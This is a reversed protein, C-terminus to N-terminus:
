KFKLKYIIKMISSYSIYRYYIGVAVFTSILTIKMLIKVIINLEMAMIPYVFITLGMVIIYLRALRMKGLPLPYLKMGYYLLLFQQFFAAIATAGAAGIAGFKPILYINLSINIIISAISAPLIYIMKESYSIQNM